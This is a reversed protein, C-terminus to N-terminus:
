SLPTSEKINNYSDWIFRVVTTASGIALHAYRPPLNQFFGDKGHGDGYNNRLEAMNQTIASLNGLIKIATSYYKNEKDM